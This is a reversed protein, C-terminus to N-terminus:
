AANAFYSQFADKTEAYCSELDTLALSAQEMQADRCKGEFILATKSLAQAGVNSASGKIAHAVKYAEEAAGDGLAAHLAAILDDTSTWFATMIEGAGDVGAAAILSDIQEREILPTMHDNHETM